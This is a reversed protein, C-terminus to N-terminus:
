IGKKSIAAIGRQFDAFGVLNKLIRTGIVSLARDSEVVVFDCDMKHGSFNLDVKEIGVKRTVGDFGIAYADTVLIGVGLRDATKRSTALCGDFGTDVMFEIQESSGCNENALDLTVYVKDTKDIRSGVIEGSVVPTYTILSSNLTDEHRPLGSCGGMFFLVCAAIVLVSAKKM